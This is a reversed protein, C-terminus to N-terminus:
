SCTFSLHWATRPALPMPCWTTIPRLFFGVDRAVALHSATLRALGKPPTARDFPPPTAFQSSCFFVLVLHNLTGKEDGLQLDSLGKFPDSLWGLLTVSQIVLFGSEFFSVNFM